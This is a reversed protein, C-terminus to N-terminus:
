SEVDELGKNYGVAYGREYGIDFAIATLQEKSMTNKKEDILKLLREYIEKEEDTM